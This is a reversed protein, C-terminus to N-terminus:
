LYKVFYGLGIIPLITKLIGKLMTLFADFFNKADSEEAPVTTFEENM